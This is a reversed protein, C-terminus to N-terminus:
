VTTVYNEMWQIAFRVIKSAANVVLTPYLDKFDQKVFTVSQDMM